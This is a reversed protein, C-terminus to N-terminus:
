CNLKVNKSQRGESEENLLIETNQTKLKMAGTPASFRCCRAVTICPKPLEGARSVPAPGCSQSM